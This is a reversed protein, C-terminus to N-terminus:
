EKNNIKAVPNWDAKVATILINQRTFSLDLIPTANKVPYVGCLIRRDDTLSVEKPPEMKPEMDSNFSPPFPANAEERLFANDIVRIFGDDGGSALVESYESFAFCTIPRKHFKRQSFIRTTGHIASFYYIAIDGDATGVALSLGDPSFALATVACGLSPINRVTHASEIDAISINGDLSAYAVASGNPSWCTATIESFVPPLIRVPQSSKSNYIFPAHEESTGAVYLGGLPHYKICNITHNTDIKRVCFKQAVAWQRISNDPAASILSLSDSSFDLALVDESHGILVHQPIERVESASGEENASSDLDWLYITSNSTGAALYKGNKSIKACQAGFVTFCCISIASERLDCFTAERTEDLWENYIKKPISPGFRIKDITIVAANDTRGAPERILQAFPECAFDYPEEKTRDGRIIGPENGSIRIKLRGNFINLLAPSSKTVSDFLDRTAAEMEIESAPSSILTACLEAIPDATDRSGLKFMIDCCHKIQTILASDMNSPPALMFSKIRDKTEQSSLISLDVSEGIQSFSTQIDKLVESLTWIYLIPLTKALDRRVYDFSQDVYNRFSSYIEITNMAMTLLPSPKRPASPPSHITKLPPASPPQRMPQPQPASAMPPPKLMTHQPVGPRGQAQMYGMQQQAAQMDKMNNRYQQEAYPNGSMMQQQMPPPMGQQYPTQYQPQYQPQGMGVPQGMGPVPTQGIPPMGQQPMRQPNFQGPGGM